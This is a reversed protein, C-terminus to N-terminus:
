CNKAEQLALYTLSIASLLSVGSAYRRLLEQFKATQNAKSDKTQTQEEKLKGLVQAAREALKSSALAAISYWLAPQTPQLMCTALMLACLSKKM